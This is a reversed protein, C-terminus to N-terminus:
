GDTAGASVAPDAGDAGRRPEFYFIEFVMNNDPDVASAFSSVKRQTIQEIASVFEIRVAAQFSVRSHRVQEQLGLDTLRREAPLLAEGLACVLMDPGAFHARSTTPGRGFHDKHLKTLANAVAV